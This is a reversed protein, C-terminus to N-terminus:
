SVSALQLRPREIFWLAYRLAAPWHSLDKRDKKHTEAKGDSDRESTELAEVLRPAVPQGREDLAVFLRREGAASCLLTNVVEIGADKPVRGPGDGDVSYAAPEVTVGANRWITYCSRDPKSDNNGYPDARVYLCPGDKTTKYAGTAPDRALLNLRHDARIRTIVTDVHQETTTRETTIEDFVVWVVRVRGPVRYARLMETVDFLAGPDHGGLAARNAGWRALEAATVDQWYDPVRITNKDRNWAPYTALEPQLDDFKFRRAFERASMVAKADEIFQPAVFPSRAIDLVRKTWKGSALLMSRLSRWASNHKATATGLQKYRGRKAARGRNQIDEHVEVQDQMEDRGAWSSNFGQIPSGQSESQRHTSVMRLRTGDCLEYGEFDKRAVYRYWERPWMKELEARVLGLRKQTPATQLGERREGLHELWRLYHWMVLVTTKGGGESGYVLQGLEPGDHVLVQEQDESCHWIVPTRSPGILRPPRVRTDLLGGFARERVIRLPPRGPLLEAGNPDAVVTRLVVGVDIFRGAAIEDDRLAREQKRKRWTLDSFVGVGIALLALGLLLRKTM